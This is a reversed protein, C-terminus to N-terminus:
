LACMVISENHIRNLARGGEVVTPCIEGYAYFGSLSVGPPLNEKIIEGEVDKDDGMVMYRGGCSVCLLTEYKYGDGSAARMKETIDNIAVRCSDIIDQRKMTVISIASNESIEGFMVGSGDGPNLTKITRAVPIKDREDAVGMYVKLPTSVYVALDGQEILEDVPLGVHRLYDVFTMDEVTRVINMEAKTVIHKQESVASLFNQVSFLPRVNGGILIIAARDEFVRGDAYMLIDGDAMNSSPLGGFIPTDGSFQSLLKVYEDLPVDSEFPPMLFMMKGRGGLSSEARKYAAELESSLNQPELTETLATGFSVDDGTLVVLVASFIQVGNQTDFNAISTCGIVEFPLKEKIARMFAEHAMEVDCYVIGCSNKGFPGQASLQDLLEGVAAEADDM